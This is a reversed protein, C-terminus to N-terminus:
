LKSEAKKFKPLDETTSKAVAGGEAYAIMLDALLSALHFNRELNYDVKGAIVLDTVRNMANQVIIVKQKSDM